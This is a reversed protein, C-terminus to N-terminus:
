AVIQVTDLQEHTAEVGRDAVRCRREALMGSAVTVTERQDSGSAM